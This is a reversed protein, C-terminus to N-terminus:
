PKIISCKELIIDTENYGTCYGKLTVNIGPELTKTKEQHGPLMTCRIGEDGFMGEEIAFVAIILSDAQETYSLDGTIELVKGNYTQEASTRNNRYESFLQLCMRGSIPTRRKTILIRNITCSIIAQWGKRDLRSGAFCRHYHDM